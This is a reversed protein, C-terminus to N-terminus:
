KSTNKQAAMAGHAMSMWEHLGREQIIHQLCAVDDALDDDKLRECSIGCRNQSPRLPSQCWKDDNIQFIGYDLSNPINGKNVANTDFASEWHVLCLGTCKKRKGLDYKPIDQLPFRYKEYLERGLECKDYVKSQAVLLHVSIIFLISIKAPSRNWSGILLHNSKYIEYKIDNREAYANKM